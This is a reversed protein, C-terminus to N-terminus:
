SWANRASKNEEHSPSTQVLNVNLITSGLVLSQRFQCEHLGSWSAGFFARVPNIANPQPGTRRGEAVQGLRMTELRQQALM